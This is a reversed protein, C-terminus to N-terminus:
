CVLGRLVVVCILLGFGRLLWVEVLFALVLACVYARFVLDAILIVVWGAYREVWLM